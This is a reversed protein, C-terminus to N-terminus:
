AEREIAYVFGDASASSTSLAEGVRMQALGVFHDANVDLDNLTGRVGIIDHRTAVHEPPADPSTICRRTISYMPYSPSM